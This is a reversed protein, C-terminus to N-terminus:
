TNKWLKKFKSETLLEKKSIDGYVSLSVRDNDFIEKFIKNCEEVTLDKVLKRLKKSDIIKNYYKFDFLKNLARSLKPEKSDDGYDMERKIKNLQEQSFGKTKMENIYHSVSLILENVNNKECESSFTVSMQDKAKLCGFGGGYVLSKKLRIEKLIGDSFDNLMDLVVNIKKGYEVDQFDKDIVFNIAVYCKNIDQNKLKLFQNNVIPGINIPLHNFNPKNPLVRSLNRQVIKKVRNFSLPSTVYVEMNENVFYKKVFNKVDKSKISSVTEVTGLTGNELHKSGLMNFANLRQAKERFKDNSRAIEQCVVKIEKDVAQQTFTSETIMTAVTSLYDKFEKTFIKGTFSIGMGNTFANVNIFDFYKKSIEEKSLSKTGTFFMHEVFHALGPITDCRSGSDFNIEVQTVKNIKNKVYFLKGGGLLDCRKFGRVNM